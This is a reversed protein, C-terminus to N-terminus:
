PQKNVTALLHPFPKLHLQTTQHWLSPRLTRSQLLDTCILKQKRISHHSLWWKSGSLMGGAVDENTIHDVGWVASSKRIIGYTLSFLNIVEKSVIRPSQLYCCSFCWHSHLSGASSGAWPNVTEYVQVTFLLNVRLLSLCFNATIYTRDWRKGM